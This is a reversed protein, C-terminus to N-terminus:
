AAVQGRGRERGERRIGALTSDTLTLVLDSSVASYKARWRVAAVVQSIYVSIQGSRLSALPLGGAGRRGTHSQWAM